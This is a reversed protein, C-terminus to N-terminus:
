CMGHMMFFDESIDDAPNKMKKDGIFQLTKETPNEKTYLNDTSFRGILSTKTNIRMIPISIKKIKKKKGKNVSIVESKYTYINVDSKTSSTLFLSYLATVVRFMISAQDFAIINRIISECLEYEAETLEEKEIYQNLISIDRDNVNSSIKDLEEQPYGAPNYKKFWDVIFSKTDDNLFKVSDFSTSKRLFNFPTNFESECKKVISAISSELNSDTQRCIDKYTDFTISRQIDINNGVTVPGVAVLSTSGCLAQGRAAIVFMRPDRNFLCTNKRMTRLTNENHLSSTNCVEILRFGIAATPLRNFEIISEGFLIMTGDYNDPILSHMVECLSKGMFEIDEISNISNIINAADFIRGRKLEDPTHILKLDNISLSNNNM